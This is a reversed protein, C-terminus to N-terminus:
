DAFDLEAPLQEQGTASLDVNGRLVVKGEKKTPLEYLYMRKADHDTISLVMALGSAIPVIQTDLEGPQHEPEAAGPLVVLAATCVVGLLFAFCYTM